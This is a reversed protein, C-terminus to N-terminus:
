ELRMDCNRSIMASFVKKKHQQPRLRLNSLKAIIDVSTMVNKKGANANVKINMNTFSALLKLLITKKLDLLRELFM